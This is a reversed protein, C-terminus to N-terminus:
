FLGEIARCGSNLGPLAGFQTVNSNTRWGALFLYVKGSFLAPTENGLVIVPPASVLNWDKNNIGRSQVGPV